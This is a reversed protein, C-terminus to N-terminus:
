NLQRCKENSNVSMKFHFCCYPDIEFENEDVTYTGAINHDLKYATCGEEPEPDNGQLFEPQVDHTTTPPGPDPDGDGNQVAEFMEVEVEEFAAVLSLDSNPMDFTYSDETSKEEGDETWSAFEYGDEATATVTVGEGEEYTFDGEGPVTVEGGNTSSVSLVYEEVTEEINVTVTEKIEEFKATVTADEDPMTFTTNPNGAEAFRGADATWGVFEWNEEADALIDVESGEEYPGDNTQDTAEGGDSPDEEMTLNYTDPTSSTKFDNSKGNGDDEGGYTKEAPSSDNNTALATLPVLLMMSALMFAIVPMIKKSIVQRFRFRQLKKMEAILYLYKTALFLKAAYLQNKLTM